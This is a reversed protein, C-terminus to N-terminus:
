NGLTAAEINRQTSTGHILFEYQRQILEVSRNSNQLQEFDTESLTKM